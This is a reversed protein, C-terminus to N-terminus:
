AVRQQHMSSSKTKEQQWRTPRKVSSWRMTSGSATLGCARETGGRELLPNSVTKRLSLSLLELRQGGIEIDVLSIAVALHILLADEPNDLRRAVPPHAEIIHHPPDGGGRLCVRSAQPHEFHALIERSANQIYERTTSSRARRHHGVAHSAGFSLRCPKNGWVSRRCSSTCICSLGVM